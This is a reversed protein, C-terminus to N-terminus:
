SSRNMQEIKTQQDKYVETKKELPAFSALVELNDAERNVKWDTWTAV